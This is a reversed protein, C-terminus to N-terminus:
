LWKKRKFLYLIFVVVLLMIGIIAPYGWPLQLEPINKFNMGYLGAIFTIPIFIASMITLL